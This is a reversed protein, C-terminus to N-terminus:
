AVPGMERLALARVQRSREAQHVVAKSLKEVAEASLDVGAELHQEIRDIGGVLEQLLKRDGSAVLMMKQLDTDIKQHSDIITQLEQLLTSRMM